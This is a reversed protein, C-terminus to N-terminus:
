NKWKTYKVFKKKHLNKSLDSKELYSMVIECCQESNNEFCYYMIFYIYNNFTMYKYLYYKQTLWLQINERIIQQFVFENDRRIVDRIYNDYLAIYKKITSHYLNYYNKNVFVLKNYPMFEYILQIIDNPLDIFCKM